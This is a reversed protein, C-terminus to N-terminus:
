RKNQLALCPGRIFQMGALVLCHHASHIDSNMAACLPDCCPVFQGMSNISITQITASQWVGYDYCMAILNEAQQAALAYM